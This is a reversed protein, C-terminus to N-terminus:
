TLKSKRRIDNEKKSKKTHCYFCLLQLKDKLEDISNKKYDWYKVGVFQREIFEIIDTRGKIPDIVPDVHDIQILTIKKFKLQGQRNKKQVGKDNLDPVQIRKDDFLEKCCACRYKVRHAKSDTGDKNKATYSVKAAEKTLYYMPSKIFIRKLLGEIM